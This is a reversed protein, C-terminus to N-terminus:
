NCDSPSPIELGKSAPPPCFHVLSPTGRKPHAQAARHHKPVTTPVPVTTQPKLGLYHGWPSSSSSFEAQAPLPHFLHTLSAWGHVLLPHQNRLHWLPHLLWPAARATSLACSEDGTGAFSSQRVRCCFLGSIFCLISECTSHNWSILFLLPPLCPSSVATQRMEGGEPLKKRYSCNIFCM